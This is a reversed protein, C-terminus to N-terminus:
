TNLSIELIVYYKGGKIEAAVIKRGDELMLKLTDNCYFEADEALNDVILKKAKM